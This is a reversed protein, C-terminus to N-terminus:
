AKLSPQYRCFPEEALYDGNIQWARARCGGCIKIFQCSGCKGQYSTFDRLQLLLKSHQWIERLSQKYVNGAPVPLYSCPQVNGDVDITCISQGAICGKAGGTGFSLPRSKIHLGKAKNHEFRIRYYHPACTPRVMMQEEEKEMDFHWNLIEDYCKADILENLLRQGRGSPVVMFLYWAMAGLSKALCYVPKIHAENRKTFSSNIIFPIAHNKLKEAALMTAKFAGPMQRFDDHVQSDAGDLSLSVISIGSKKIERCVEDDILTGNTAMAMRLGKDVGYHALTFIDDRM